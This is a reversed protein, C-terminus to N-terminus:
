RADVLHGTLQQEGLDVRLLPGVFALRYRLADSFVVRDRLLGALLTTGGTAGSGPSPRPGPTLPRFDRSRWSLCTEIRWRLYGNTSAKRAGPNSTYPMKM